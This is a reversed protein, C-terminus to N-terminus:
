RPEGFRVRYVKGTKEVAKRFALEMFRHLGDQDAEDVVKTPRRKNPKKRKTMLQPCNKRAHGEVVFSL